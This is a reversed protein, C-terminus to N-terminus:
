TLVYVYFILKNKKAGRVEEGGCATGNLSEFRGVNLLLVSLLDYRLPYSRPFCEFYSIATKILRHKMKVVNDCFEIFPPTAELGNNSGGSRGGVDRGFSAM